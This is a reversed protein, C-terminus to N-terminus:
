DDGDENVEEPTDDLGEIDSYDTAVDEDEMKAAVVRFDRQMGLYNKLSRGFHRDVYSEIGEVDKFLKQNEVWEAPSMTEIDKVWVGWSSMSKQSSAEKLKDPTIACKDMLGTLTEMEAKTPSQGDDRKKRISLQQLCIEKILIDVSKEDVDKTKAWGNYEEELFAYDEEEWGSGWKKELLSKRSRYADELADKVQKDTTRDEYGEPRDSKYLDFFLEEDKNAYIRTLITLYKGFISTKTNVAIEDIDTISSDTEEGNIADITAQMSNKELAQMLSSYAKNDYRVNVCKCVEYIAIDIRSHMSYFYNFLYTCCDICISMKGDTDLFDYSKYFKKADKTNTCYRCKKLREDKNKSQAEEITLPATREMKKKTAKAM